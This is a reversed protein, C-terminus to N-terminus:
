DFLGSDMGSKLRIASLYDRAKVMGRSKIREREEQRSKQLRPYPKPRRKVARLEVGDPRNGVRKQSILLFLSWPTM